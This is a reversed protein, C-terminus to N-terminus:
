RVKQRDFRDKDGGDLEGRQKCELEYYRKIQRVLTKEVVMYCKDEEVHVNCLIPIQLGSVEVFNELADKHKPNMLLVAETIGGDEKLDEVMQRDIGDLVKRAVEELVGM